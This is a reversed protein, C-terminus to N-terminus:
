DHDTAKWLYSTKFVQNSTKWFRNLPRVLSRAKSIFKNTRNQNPQLKYLRRRGTSKHNASMSWQNRFLPKGRNRMLFHNTCLLAHAHSNHTINRFIFCSYVPKVLWSFRNKMQRQDIFFILAFDRERTTM